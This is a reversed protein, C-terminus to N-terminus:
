KKKRTGIHSSPRCLRFSFLFFCFFLFNVCVCVRVCAFLYVRLPVSSLNRIKRIIYRMRRMRLDRNSDEKKKEKNIKKTSHFAGARMALPARDDDCKANVSVDATVILSCDKCRRNNLRTITHTHTHTHSRSTKLLPNFLFFFVRNTAPSSADHQWRASM